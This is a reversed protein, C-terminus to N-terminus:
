SLGAADGVEGAVEAVYLRVNDVEVGELGEPAPQQLGGGFGAAPDHDGHVVEPPRARALEEDGALEQRAGQDDRAPQTGALDIGAPQGGAM